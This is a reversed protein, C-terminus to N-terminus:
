VLTRTVELFRAIDASTNFLAPSVRVQGVAGRVTVDISAPGFAATLTGADKTTYYTVISSGNDEPTFLRHGQKALGARLERALAVTHGEIRHVGVRELYALGAGLQYVECFPLTSYDFRKATKYLDFGGDSRAREVHLAGFRDLRIRDLLERRVYFPAVGFSGLLWKYTGACLVDVGDAKVDTPFMGVAQIGDAYFLAGHAHALDALPRMSHRYGNHHSVWAVSLLRTRRDVLPEFDRAEVRGERHRAVRLEVGRTDQLHRYLVFETEYHLDDIVINDGAKLDLANAVINEGESTSFLFGIEDAGANILRAFQTRVEDTKKLMDGLSIPRIAKSEVFARGATVVQSPVPTIYASNLYTREGTVPFDDRVGLPDDPTGERRGATQLAAPASPDPLGGGVGAAVSATSAIFRRRSLTM